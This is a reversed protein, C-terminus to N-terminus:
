QYNPFPEREPGTTQTLTEKTTRPQLYIFLYCYILLILNVIFMYVSVNETNLYNCLEHMAVQRFPRSAMYVPWWHECMM